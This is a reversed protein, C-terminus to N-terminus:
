GWTLLLPVLLWAVVATSVLWEEDTHLESTGTVFKLAVPGVIANICIYFKLKKLQTSHSPLRDDTLVLHADPPAYVRQAKPVVYITAADIWFTRRLQEIPWLLLKKCAERRERRNEVSLLRKIVQRRRRCAPEVKVMQRLLTEPEIKYKTTIAKLDKNQGVAQKISRYHLHKGEAVYGAWLIEVARKAEEPPVSSPRGPSVPTAVSYKTKFAKVWDRIFRAFNIGKVEPHWSKLAAVAAAIDEGNRYWCVVADHRLQCRRKEEWDYMPM